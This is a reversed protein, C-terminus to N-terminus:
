GPWTVELSLRCLWTFLVQPGRTLVVGPRGAKAEKGTDPDVVRLEVLSPPMGVQVCM